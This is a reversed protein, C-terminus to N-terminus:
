HSLDRRLGKPYHNKLTGGTLKGWGMSVGNISAIIWGSVTEVNGKEGIRGPGTSPVFTEGRLFAYAEDITLNCTNYIQRKSVAMALAHAPELRNKKKSVLELGPRIVRIGSMRKVDFGDPLLFISDSTEYICEPSLPVGELGLETHLFQSVEDCLAANRKGFDSNRGKRKPTQDSMRGYPDYSDATGTLATAGDKVLKAIFHGEGRSIHPWIRTTLGVEPCGDAWEARGRTPISTLGTDVIHWDPHRSVFATITRENEAPEFTCTSYVIMGGPMVMDAAADLIEAQRDACMDVVSLSWEGAADEDKRFMGEGSCPADVCVKHFYGPFKLAMDQPSANTVICNSVGMREVNRALIRARDPVIENAVLIGEGLMRGAIHTTKGGPAACLDCIREGPVPDMASIVSMASPEQIYYAGADHYPSRGAQCSDKNYYYGEDCWPVTEGADAGIDSLIGEIDAKGVKLPNIRLGYYRDADYSAEFAPYEEGLLLRMRDIYDKPLYM